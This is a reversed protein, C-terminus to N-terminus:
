AERMTGLRDELSRKVTASAMCINQLEVRFIFGLWTAPARPQFTVESKLNFAFFNTSVMLFPHWGVEKGWFTSAMEEEFYYNAEYTSGPYSSLVCRVRVAFFRLIVLSMEHWCYDDHIHLVLDPWDALLSTEFRQCVVGKARKRTHLKANGKNIHLGHSDTPVAYVCIANKM